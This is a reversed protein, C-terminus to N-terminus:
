TAYNTHTHTHERSIQTDRHPGAFTKLEADVKVPANGRRGKSCLERIKEGETIVPLSVSM